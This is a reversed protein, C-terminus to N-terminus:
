QLLNKYMAKQTMINGCVTM